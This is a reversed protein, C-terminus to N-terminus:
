QMATGKINCLIHVEHLGHVYFGSAPSETRVQISPNRRLFEVVSQRIDWPSEYPLGLLSLQDSIANFFCNGDGPTNGHYALNLKKCNAKLSKVVQSQSCQHEIWDQQIRELVRNFQIFDMNSSDTSHFVLIKHNEAKVFVAVCLMTQPTNFSTIQTDKLRM